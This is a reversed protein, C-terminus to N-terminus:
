CSTPLSTNNMASYLYLPHIAGLKVAVSAALVGAHRHYLFSARCVVLVIKRVLDYSILCALKDTILDSDVKICLLIM